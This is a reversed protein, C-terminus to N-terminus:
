TRLNYEFINSYDIIKKILKTRDKEERLIRRINEQLNM